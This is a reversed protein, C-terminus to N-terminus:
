RPCPAAGPHGCAGRNPAPRPPPPRPPAPRQPAPRPPAPRQIVPRPPPPPRFAPRPPVPRQLMPHPPPPRRLAPRPPTVRRQPIVRSQPVRLPQVRPQPKPPPPKPPARHLVGVPPRPLPLVKRPPPAHPVLGSAHPLAPGGSAGPLPHPPPIPGKGPLILAPGPHAGAPLHRPPLGNPQLPTGPQPGQPGKPLTRILPTPGKRVPGGTFKPPTAVQTPKVGVPLPIPRPRVRPNRQSEVRQDRSFPIVIPVPLVGPRPPRPPPPMDIFERRPPEIFWIPPPPPPPYEDEEFIIVPREDVIVVEDPPPPPLDEYEYVTFSAPPALPERLAELRRRADWIHPGRPYRRMYTWYADPTNARVTQEWTLAERRAALLARVRRALPNRPFYRLFDEYAPITDRELVVVYAEDPRLERLPRRRLARARSSLYVPTQAGPVPPAMDFSSALASANWPVELGNTLQNVRLRVQAFLDAIPLGPQRMTEALAQAYAGYSGQETPGITGPAANFAILEGPDPTVISLGGALPEGQRAFPNARAADLVIVRARLPIGALARTFDSVRVAEIPTDSATAIKAGIPAFYNEGAYQLGYGALYVFAIAHPGAARAKNLFDRFARRLSDQDLDRAGVVDFGDQQLTSAVLGADNAPTALAGVQYNADGIVLAIRPGVSQALAGGGAALFPLCALWALLLRVPRSM